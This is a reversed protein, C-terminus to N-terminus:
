TLLIFTGSYLLRNTRKKSLIEEFCVIKYLDHFILYKKSTSCIAPTVQITHDIYIFLESPFNLKKGNRM